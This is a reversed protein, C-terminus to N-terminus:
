TRRDTVRRVVLSRPERDAGGRVAPQLTLRPIRHWRDHWRPQSRHVPAYGRSCATAPLQATDARTGGAAVLSRDHAHIPRALRRTRRGDAGSDRRRDPHQLYRRRQQASDPDRRTNADRVCLARADTRRRDRFGAPTAHRRISAATRTRRLEDVLAEYVATGKQLQNTRGVGCSAAGPELWTDRLRFVVNDAGAPPAVLEQRLAATPEIVFLESGDWIMGSLSTDRVALRVWSGSAGEIRGRFLQLNGVTAAERGPFLHNTELTLEFRRGYAEFSTRREDPKSSGDSARANWSMHLPEFYLIRAGSASSEAAESVSACGIVAIAACAAAVSAGGTAWGGGLQMCVGNRVALRKERRCVNCLPPQACNRM